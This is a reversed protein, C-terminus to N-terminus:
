NLMMLFFPFHYLSNKINYSPMHKWFEYPACFINCFHGGSFRKQWINKVTEPKPRCKKFYLLFDCWAGMIIDQSSRFANLDSYGHGFHRLLYFGYVFDYTIRIIIINIKSVQVYFKCISLWKIYWVCSISKTTPHKLDFILSNIM